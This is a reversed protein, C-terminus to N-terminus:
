KKTIITVEYFEPDYVDEVQISGFDGSLIVLNPPDNTEFSSSLGKDALAKEYFAVIEAFEMEAEYRVHYTIDGDPWLYRDSGRVVSTEDTLPFPFEIPLNMPSTISQELTVTEGDKEMKMRAYGEPTDSEATNSETNTQNEEINDNNALQNDNTKEQQDIDKNDGCAVLMALLIVAIGVWIRKLM